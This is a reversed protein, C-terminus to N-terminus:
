ANLAQNVSYIWEGKVMEAHLKNDEVLEILMLRIHPERRRLENPLANQIARRSMRGNARILDMIGRKCHVRQCHICAKGQYTKISLYLRTTENGCATCRVHLTRTAYKELNDATVLFVGLTKGTMDERNMLAIM